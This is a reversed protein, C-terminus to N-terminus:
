LGVTVCFPSPFQDPKAQGVSTRSVMYMEHKSSIFMTERVELIELDGTHYDVGIYGLYM